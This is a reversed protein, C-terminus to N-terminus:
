EGCGKMIFSFLKDAASQGTGCTNIMAYRGDKYVEVTGWMLGSTVCGLTDDRSSLVDDSAMSRIRSHDNVGLSYFHAEKLEGNAPGFLSRIVSGDPFFHYDFIDGGQRQFLFHVYFQNIGSVNDLATSFIGELDAVESSANEALVTYAKTEKGNAYFLHMLSCDSCDIGKNSEKILGIGNEILSSASEQPVMGVNIVVDKGNHIKVLSVGNSLTLYERFSSPSESVYEFFRMDEPQMSFRDSPPSSCCPLLLVLFLLPIVREM